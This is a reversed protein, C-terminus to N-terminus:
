FAGGNNIYYSSCYMGTGQRSCDFEVEDNSAASGFPELKDKYINMGFVDKGWVNPGSKGNVDYMLIGIIIRNTHPEIKPNSYWKFALTANSDTNYIENFVYDKKVPEGNMYKIKYSVVKNLPHIKVLAAVFNQVTIEQSNSFTKISTPIELFDNQVQKWKSVNRAQITDDISLPIVLLAVMVFIVLLIVVEVLTFAKKM